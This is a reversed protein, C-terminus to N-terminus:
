YPVAYSGCVKEVCQVLYLVEGQPLVVIGHVNLGYGPILDTNKLVFYIKPKLILVQKM